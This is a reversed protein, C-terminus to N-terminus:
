IENLSVALSDDPNLSRGKAGLSVNLADIDSFTEFLNKFFYKTVKDKNQEWLISSQKNDAYYNM